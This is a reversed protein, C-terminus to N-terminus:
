RRDRQGAGKSPVTLDTRAPTKVSRGDLAIGFGDKAEVVEASKWFRRV